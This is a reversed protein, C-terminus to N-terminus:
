HGSQWPRSSTHRIHVIWVENGQVEYYIKYPHRVLTLEHIGPEDTTPAMLPFDTLWSIRREIVSKITEASAPARERLYVYIEDLDARARLTYRVKM